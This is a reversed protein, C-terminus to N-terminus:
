RPPTKGRLAAFATQGDRLTLEGSANKMVSVGEHTKGYSGPSADGMPTFQLAVHTIDHDTGRMEMTVEPTRVRYGINRGRAIAGTVARLSGRVLMLTALNQPADGFDIYRYAEVRVETSPRMTIRAGDLMSLVAWSNEGTRVTDGEEIDLGYRLSCEQKGSVVRVNGEVTLVIGVQAHGQVAWLTCLTGLM